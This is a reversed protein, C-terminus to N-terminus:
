MAPRQLPPPFLTRKQFSFKHDDIILPKKGNEGFILEVAVFVSSVKKIEFVFVDHRLVYITGYTCFTVYRKRWFKYSMYAGILDLYRNQSNKTYENRLYGVKSNEPVVIARFSIRLM